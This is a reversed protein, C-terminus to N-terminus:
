IKKFYKFNLHTSYSYNFYQMIDRPIIDATMEHSMGLEQSFKLHMFFHQKLIQYEYKDVNEHFYETEAYLILFIV